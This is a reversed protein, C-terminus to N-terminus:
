RGGGLIRELLGAQDDAPPRRTVLRGPPRGVPKRAGTVAAPRQYDLRPATADEPQEHSRFWEGADVWRRRRQQEAM